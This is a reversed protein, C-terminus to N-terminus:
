SRILDAQYTTHAPDSTTWRRDAWISM